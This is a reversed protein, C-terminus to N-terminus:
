RMSPGIVLRSTRPQFGLRDAVNFLGVRLALQKRPRVEPKRWLCPQYERDNQGCISSSLLALFSTGNM